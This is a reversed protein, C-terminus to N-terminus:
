RGSGRLVYDRYLNNFSHHYKRSITLAAGSHMWVCGQAVTEVHDMNVLFSKHIRAFQTIPLSQELADLKEYFTRDTGDTLHIVIEPAQSEFYEIQSHYLSVTNKRTDFRFISRKEEIRRICRLLVQRTKEADLPKVLYQFAWVDFADPMFEQHSTVFIIEANPDSKRIVAAAQLGSTEGMEIDLLYIHFAFSDAEVERLLEEASSFVECSFRTTDNQFCYAVIHELAAAMKIDDDCIAIRM